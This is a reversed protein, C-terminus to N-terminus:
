DLPQKASDKRGRLDDAWVGFDKLIPWGHGLKKARNERKKEKKKKKGKKM